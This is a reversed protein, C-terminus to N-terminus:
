PDRRRLDVLTHASQYEDHRREVGSNGVYLSSTRSKGFAM